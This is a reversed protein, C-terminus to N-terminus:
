HRLFFLKEPVSALEEVDVQEEDGHERRAKAHGFGVFTVRNLSQDVNPAVVSLMIVNLMVVSLM